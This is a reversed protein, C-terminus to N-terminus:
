ENLCHIKDWLAPLVMKYDLIFILLARTQGQIHSLVQPALPVVLKLYCM